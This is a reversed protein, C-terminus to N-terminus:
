RRYILNFFIYNGVTYSVFGLVSFLLHYWFPRGDGIGINLLMGGAFLALQSGSALLHKADTFFVPVWTRRKDDPWARYKNTWSIAPNWFQPNLGPFRAAFKSWHHSIKEHVGWTAGAVFLLVFSFAILM